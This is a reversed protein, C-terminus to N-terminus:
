RKFPWWNAQGFTKVMVPIFLPLIIINYVVLGTIIITAIEMLETVGSPMMAAFTGGLIIAASSIVTGMNKMADHIAATVPQDRDENFRDMLFISYDVGLAILMVFGFFPIAWNLGSYGLINTFIFETISVSTYYTAVLSLLIYAPMIFSRLLAILVLGIGLLMLVVTRTYDENSVDRLDHYMSTTGGIGVKANEMPTNKTARDVAAQIDDIQNIAATSYPNKNLVVDMTTMKRNDSMYNDLGEKFDESNLASDPIYFGALASNSGALQQLFDRSDNLGTSVKNLGNVSDDLGNALTSLQDVMQSVGEKLRKQGDNVDNLGDKLKPINNIAQQQGNSLDNLGNQLDSIGKVAEQLQHSFQKQGDILKDLGQNAESMQNSIDDLNKNLKGLNESLKDANKQLKDAAGVAFKYNDDKTIEPHDKGLQKLRSNVKKLTEKMQPLSDELKGYKNSLTNLGGQIDQYGKTLQQSQDALQKAGQKAQQLGDKLDAAGSSSDQLGGHVKKLGQKLDNVGSKLDKTGSILPDFGNVTKKLKPKSNKLQDRADKLGNKVKDIGNNADGLGEDLTQAQNPVLFDEIPDGTPHTASRVTKVGDVKNVERTVSELTTLYRRQDMKEDNKMVITTPMAQGPTFGDAIANFGEVSKYEDGLGELSNYSKQGDYSLIAPVIVAAVILLAILPRALAFKGVRGWVKNQNHEMAKKSPWFLHRGLLQMLIPVITVIALILIAIGVAVGVASQYLSFKSFGITSFGILVAIASFFMTKGGHKYTNVVADSVTEHRPLEEKFRNLILICYDTGIGFLVAVLFIQTFNSLPFDFWDVLFSVVSQSALYTIGVTLLPVFPTVVSRFVVLLVILIFVITIWETQHLGDQTSSILDDEIIWDGTFYHDVEVDDVTDYLNNKVNKVSRDGLHIEVSSLITSGDDSVFQDKLDPQDFYSTVSQIGLEEKHDKLEQLAHKVEKKDSKNMGGDKQFVLATSSTDETGEKEHMKNLIKDAVSSSYGEGKPVDPQGQERVQEGMSPATLALAAIGAIWIAIVLWKAKLIFKM